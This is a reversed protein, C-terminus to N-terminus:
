PLQWRAIELHLGSYNGAWEDPDTNYSYSSVLTGDHLQLVNRTTCEGYSYRAPIAMQPQARTTFWSEGNDPSRHLLGYCYGDKNM